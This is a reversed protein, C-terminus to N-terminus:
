KANEAKRRAITALIAKTQDAATIGIGINRPNPKQGNPGHNGHHTKTRDTQIQRELAARHGTVPNKGWMWGSAELALFASRTEAETYDAGNKKWDELWKLAAAITPTDSLRRPTFEPTTPPSVPVKGATKDVRREEVRREEAGNCPRKQLTGHLTENRKARYKRVRETSSDSSMQRKEWNSVCIEGGENIHLMKLDLLLRFTETVNRRFAWNLGDMKLGTSGGRECECAWCLTEVFVRFTADDLAGMKPDDKVERYFRFWPLSM